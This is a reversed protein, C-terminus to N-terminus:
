PNILKVAPVIIKETTRCRGSKLEDYHCKRLSYDSKLCIRVEALYNKRCSVVINERSIMPIELTIKKLLKQFDFAHTTTIDTFLSAIKFKKYLDEITKFYSQQTFNGCSAHKEWQHRMLGSSPMLYFYNEVISAELKKDVSRCYNLYSKQTKQTRTGQEQPWLGHVIFRYSKPLTKRCQAQKGYPDQELCYTPSWSLAFLFDRKITSDTETHQKIKNSKDFFIVIVAIIISIIGLLVFIYKKFTM